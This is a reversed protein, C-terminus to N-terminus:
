IEVFAKPRDIVPIRRYTVSVTGVSNGGKDMASRNVKVPYIQPYVTLTTPVIISKGSVPGSDNSVPFPNTNSKRAYYAAMSVNKLPVFCLKKDIQVLRQWYKHFDYILELGDEYYEVQLDQIEFGKPVPYKLGGMIEIEEVNLTDTPPTFKRARGSIYDLLVQNTLQSMAARIKVKNSETDVAAWNARAIEAAHMNERFAAIAETADTVANKLGDIGGVASLKWMFDYNRSFGSPGNRIPNFM